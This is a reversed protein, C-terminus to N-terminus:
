PIAPCEAGAGFESRRMFDADYLSDMVASMDNLNSRRDLCFVIHPDVVPFMRTLKSLLSRRLSRPVSWGRPLRM